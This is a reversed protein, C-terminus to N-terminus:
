PKFFSLWNGLLRKTLMVATSIYHLLFGARVCFYLDLVCPSLFNIPLFFFLSHFHPDIVPMIMVFQGKEPM